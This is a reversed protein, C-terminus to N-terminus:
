TMMLHSRRCHGGPFTQSFCLAGNTFLPDEHLADSNPPPEKALNTRSLERYRKGKRGTALYFLHRMRDYHGSNASRLFRLAHHARKVSPRRHDRFKAQVTDRVWSRCFPPLYTVERLVHRYLHLLSDPHPIQLPM